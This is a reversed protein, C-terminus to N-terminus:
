DRDRVKALRKEELMAIILEVTEDVVDNTSLEKLWRLTAVLGRTLLRELVVTWTIRGMVASFTDAVLQWTLASAMSKAAAFLTKLASM